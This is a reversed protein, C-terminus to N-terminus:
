TTKRGPSKGEPMVGTTHAPSPHAGEGGACGASRCDHTLHISFFLIQVCLSMGLAQHLVAPPIANPDIGGLNPRAVGSGKGWRRAGKQLRWKEPLFAGENESRGSAIMEILSPAPRLGGRHCGSGDGRHRGSIGRVEHISRGCVCHGMLLGQPGRLAGNLTEVSSRSALSRLDGYLAMSLYAGERGM